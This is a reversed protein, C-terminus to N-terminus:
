TQRWVEPNNNSPKCFQPLRESGKSDISYPLQPRLKQMGSEILQTMRWGTLETQSCIYECSLIDGHAATFVFQKGSGFQGTIKGDLHFVATDTKVSGVGRHRGLHTANGVITHLRADQGPLPLGIPAVGEGKINFPKVQAEADYTLLTFTSVVAAFYIATNKLLRMRIM